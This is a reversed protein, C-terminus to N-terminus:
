QRTKRRRRRGGGWKQEREVKKEGAGIEMVRALLAEQGERGRGLGVGDSARGKGRENM